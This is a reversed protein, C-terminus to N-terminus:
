DLYNNHFNPFEEQLLIKGIKVGTVLTEEEGAENQEDEVVLEQEPLDPIEGKDWQDPSVEEFSETCSCPSWWCHTPLFSTSTRFM